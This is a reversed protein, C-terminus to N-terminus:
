RALTYKCQGYRGENCTVFPARPVASQQAAKPRANASALARTIIAIVNYEIRFSITVGVLASQLSEM